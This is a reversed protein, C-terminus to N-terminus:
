KKVTGGAAACKEATMSLYGKGKCAGHGKCANQEGKCDNHGKCANVGYCHVKAEDGKGEDAMAGSAAFFGAASVAMAMGITKMPTTM